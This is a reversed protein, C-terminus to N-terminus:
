TDAIHHRLLLSSDPAHVTERIAPGDFHLSVYGHPAYKHAHGVVYRNPGDLVWGDPVGERSVELWSSGDANVSEPPSLFTDRPHPYGGHGVCRGWTSWRPHERFFVCRHEHAWYWAVVRREELVDGLAATLKTGQHEFASFPPHHSFLVVKRGHAAAARRRIWACQEPGLEGDHYGTDLGLCVFYQNEWAFCSSGRQLAFRADRLTTDFYGSGGSFMERSSNLAWSSSGPIVPWLNLFRDVVEQRTGTYYVDGLHLLADFRPTTSRISSASVPAGYLGSGWDGLVALRFEDPMRTASDVPAVFGHKRSYGDFWETVFRRAWDVLDSNAVPRPSTLTPSREALFSMVVAATRDNPAFLVDTGLGRMTAAQIALAVLECAASAQLLAGEAGTTGSWDAHALARDVAQLFSRTVDPQVVGEVGQRM